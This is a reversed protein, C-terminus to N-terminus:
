CITLTTFIYLIIKSLLKKINLTIYHKKLIINKLINKNKNNNKCVEFNEYVSILFYRTNYALHM